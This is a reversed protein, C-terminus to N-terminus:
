FRSAVNKQSCVRLKIGSEIHVTITLSSIQNLYVKGARIAPHNSPGDPRSAAGWTFEDNTSPRFWIDAGNLERVWGSEDNVYVWMRITCMWWIAESSVGLTSRMVRVRYVRMRIVRIVRNQHKMIAMDKAILQAQARRRRSIQRQQQSGDLHRRFENGGIYPLSPEDVQLHQSKCPSKDSM